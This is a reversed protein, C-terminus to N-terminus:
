MIASGAMLAKDLHGGLFRNIQGAAAVPDRLIDRHDLYLTEFNGTKELYQRVTNIHLRFNHRMKTDDPGADEGHRALM